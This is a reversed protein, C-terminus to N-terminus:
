FFDRRGLHFTSLKLCLYTSQVEVLCFHLTRPELNWYSKPKLNKCILYSQLTKFEKTPNYMRSCGYGPKYKLSAISKSKEGEMGKKHADKTNVPYKGTYYILENTSKKISKNLATKPDCCFHASPVSTECTSRGWDQM